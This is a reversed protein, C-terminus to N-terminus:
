CKLFVSTRFEGDHLSTELRGERRSAMEEIIALGWGHESLPARKPAKAAPAASNTCLLKLYGKEKKAGIDIRPEAAGSLRCGNVANDMVNAFLSCLDMENIGTENELEISCLLRIGSKRCLEAKENMVANVVDNLCYYQASSLKGELGDLMRLAAEGSGGSFLDYATQLQNRLDHRVRSTEEADAKVREYYAKQQVLQQELFQARLRAQDAARLDNVSKLMVFDGVVSLLVFLALMYFSGNSAGALIAMYTAYYGLLAQSLPFIIFFKLSSGGRKLVKDWGAAAGYSLTAVIMLVILRFLIYKAPYELFSIPTILPSSMEVGGIILLLIGFFEPAIILLLVTVSVFARNVARDDSMFFTIALTFLIQLTSNIASLGCLYLAIRMGVAGLSFACIYAWPRRYSVMKTAANAVVMNLPIIFLTNIIYESCESGM